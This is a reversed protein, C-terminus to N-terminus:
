KTTAIVEFVRTYHTPLPFNGHHYSKTAPPIREDLGAEHHEHITTYM